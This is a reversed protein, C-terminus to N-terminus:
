LINVKLFIHFERNLFFFYTLSFIYFIAGCKQESSTGNQHALICKQKEIFDFLNLHSQPAKIGYRVYVFESFVLNAYVGKNERKKFVTKINDCLKDQCQSLVLMMRWFRREGGASCCYDAGFMKSSFSLHHTHQYKAVKEKKKAWEIAACCAHLTVFLAPYVNLCVLYLM